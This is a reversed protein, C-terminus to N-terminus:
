LHLTMTAWLTAYPFHHQDLPPNNPDKRDVRLGHIAGARLAGGFSLWTTAMAEIGGGVSWAFGFEEKVYDDVEGSTPDKGVFVVRDAAFGAGGTVYLFASRLPFMYGGEIQLLLWRANYRDYVKDKISIAEEVPQEGTYLWAFHGGFVLRRYTALLQVGPGVGTPQDTTWGVSGLVGLHLHLGHPDILDLRPCNPCPKPAPCPRPPPSPKPLAELKVQVVQEKEMEVEIRRDALRYGELRLLLVHRGPSLKLVAPTKGPEPTERADVLVTAGAPESHVFVNVPLSLLRRIRQEIDLRKPRETTQKLLERYAALARANSGLNEHCRAINFLASPHPAVQQAQEFSALAEKYRGQKYLEQGRDFLEAAQKVPDKALAGGACLM